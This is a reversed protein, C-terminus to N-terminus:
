AGDTAYGPAHPQDPPPLWTGELAQVRLHIFALRHVPAASSANWAPVGERGSPCFWETLVIVDCIAVYAAEAPRSDSLLRTMQLM